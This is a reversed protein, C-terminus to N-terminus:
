VPVVDAAIGLQEVSARIEALYVPNMVVILGPRTERLSEAPSVPLGVGPVFRGQKRPSVDVVTQVQAGAADLANLFTVGKSGTGWVAVGDGKAARDALERQWHTRRENYASAYREILDPLEDDPQMEASGDWRGPRAEITLFQGSYAADLRDVVFGAREFLSRLSGPTYYAVHEYIVDWVGLDRITWLGNPVEFFIAAGPKSELGVRLSRLFELPRHLHELVHRCCLLDCRLGAHQADYPEPLLRVGLGADIEQRGALAPDFGVGACRGADCLGALFSGDGCGIEVVQKGGLTHRLSLDAALDSEYRRFTPSFGLCNEYGAQYTALAPVFAANWILSCDACHALEIDGRPAARASAAEDYLVNCFVPVQKMGFFREGGSTGCAPCAAGIPADGAPEHTGGM